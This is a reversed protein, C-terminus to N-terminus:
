DIRRWGPVPGDVQDRIFKTLADDIVPGIRATAIKFWARTSVVHNVLVAELRLRQGFQDLLDDIADQARRECVEGLREFICNIGIVSHICDITDHFAASDNKPGVSM